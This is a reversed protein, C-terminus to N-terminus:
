SLITMFEPKLLSEKFEKFRRCTDKLHGLQQLTYDHLLKHSLKINQAPERPFGPLLREMRDHLHCTLNSLEPEVAPDLPRLNLLLTHERPAPETRELEM